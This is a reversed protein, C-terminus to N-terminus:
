TADNSAKLLGREDVHEGNSVFVYGRQLPYNWTLFITVRVMLWALRYDTIPLLLLVAVGVANLLASTGSVFLYRSGQQFYSGEVMFAWVRNVSFNLLGGAVCGLLTAAPPSLPTLSVLLVVVVFDFLTAASASVVGRFVTGPGSSFVIRAETDSALARLLYVLRQVATIHTTVGVVVIGFVVLPYRPWDPPFASFIQQLPSLGLALILVALRETRQMVGVSHFSVGLGEGRARVYPVLMTGTLALLTAALVWGDRYFWALGVLVAADNYRDLVSDLAAGQPGDVKKSRALRGDFFDCLGSAFFLWGAEGFRGVAACIGAATALMLSLTTMALPPVEGIMLLMWLPQILWSFFRRVPMSILITSGRGEVEPDHWPKGRYIRIVYIAGGITCYTTLLAIPAVAAWISGSKWIGSVSVLGEM